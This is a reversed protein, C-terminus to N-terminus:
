SLAQDLDAILDDAHELGVSLRLLGDGIGRRQREKPTLGAHSMLRPYSIISEVGGLSAALAFLRTRGLVREAAPRGGRVEFAVMGGFGRMQRAALAHQPHSVLGPYHVAAVRPHEELLEAVARANASHAAMRIELTRIGRLTLWCDFPAAVGGTLKQVTYLRERLAPDRVVLAGGLLDTHGGLYKTASHMVIDVGLDLPTQYCPTAFTNDIAVLAGVSRAAQVVAAVDTIRLLPNSPSEIWVLRTDATIAATFADTDTADVLEVCVGAPRLVQEALQTTGGYVDRAMVLRDGPRLLRLACDTAAQGSSFCLAPCDDPANELSAICRELASRTPNGYRVYEYGTRPEGPAAYAYVTTLHIPPVVDGDVGPDSGSHIARTAFKV